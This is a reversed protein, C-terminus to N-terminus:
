FRYTFTAMAYSNVAHDYHYESRGSTYTYCQVMDRQGLLDNAQISIEANRGKLFAICLEANIITENGNMDPEVYGRRCHNYADIGLSLGFHTEYRAVCGYGFTNLDRELAMALSSRLSEHSAYAYPKVSLGACKLQLGAYQIASFQKTVYCYMEGDDVNQQGIRRNANVSGQLDLYWRGMNGFASQFGWAGEFRRNGDVNIKSYRRVGTHQNYSVSQALARQEVNGGIQLNFQRESGASFYFFSMNMTHIFANKLGPNGCQINLPDSNDEVPILDLISPRQTRGDYSATVSWGKGSRWTFHMEPSWDTTNHLTDLRLSHREYKTRARETEVIGGLSFRISGKTLQIVIRGRQHLERNGANRSLSDNRQLQEPAIYGTESGDALSVPQDAKDEKYTLTYETQLKLCKMLPEVYSAQMTMGSHTTEGDSRRMSYESWGSQMYYSILNVDTALEDMRESNLGLSVDINRGKKAAFQHNIRINLEAALNNSKNDNEAIQQNILRRHQNTTRSDHNYRNKGHTWTVYPDFHLSTLSDHWEIGMQVSLTGSTSHSNDQSEQVSTMCPLFSEFINHNGDKSKAGDYYASSNVRWAEDEWAAMGSINRRHLDASYTRKQLKDYYNEGVGFTVPLNDLTASFMNQWSESFRSASASGSYRQKTGCGATVDYLWGQRKDEHTVLDMVQEEQAQVVGTERDRDNAEEYIHISVLADARLNELLVNEKLGYLRKGNILLRDINRGKARITGDATVEVGPLNQLLSKLREGQRETFSAVRFVLTDGRMSVSVTEAEVLVPSLTISDAPISDM